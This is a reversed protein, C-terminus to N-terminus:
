PKVYGFTISQSLSKDRAGKTYTITSIFMTEKWDFASGVPTDRGVELWLAELEVIDGTISFICIDVLLNESDPPWFPPHNSIVLFRNEANVAEIPWLGTSKGGSFSLSQVSFVRDLPPEPVYKNSNASIFLNQWLNKKAFPDFGSKIFPNLTKVFKDLVRINNRVPQQAPSNADQYGAPLSRVVTKHKWKQSVIQGVTGNPVGLVKNRLEAM